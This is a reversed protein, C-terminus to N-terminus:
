DWAVPLSALAASSRSRAGTSIKKPSRSASTACDGSCRRSRSRPKSVPSRRESATTLAAVSDSTSSTREDLDLTDPDRVARSRSQGLRDRRDRLRGAQDGVASEVDAAAWRTIAREVPSDYRPAGRRRPLVLTARLAELQDPNSLLALVANTILSVTTEHGAVILLVVMSYLENESLHDGQEEAQVLASVSRRRAPRRARVPRRTPSSSTTHGRVARSDETIPPDRLHEVVVAGSRRRSASSSPSSRSRSPFAYDDVVDM